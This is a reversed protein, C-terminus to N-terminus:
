HLFGFFSLHAFLPSRGSCRCDVPLRQRAMMESQEAWHPLPECPCSEPASVDRVAHLSCDLWNGTKPPALKAHDLVSYLALLAHFTFELPLQLLLLLVFWPPTMGTRSIIHRKHREFVLEAIGVNQLGIQIASFALAALANGNGKLDVLLAIEHAKQILDIRPFVNNSSGACEGNVPWFRSFDPGSQEAVSNDVMQNVILNAFVKFFTKDFVREAAYFSSPRKGCALPKFLKAAACSFVPM